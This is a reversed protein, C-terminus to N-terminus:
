KGICFNSFIEGLLDDASFEGTIESLALQAMRLEEAALEHARNFLQQLSNKIFTHTRELADLHRRRALFTGEEDEVFGVQKKIQDKLLEIGTQYRASLAIVTKGAELRISPPVPILDIKNEIVIVSQLENSKPLEIADKKNTVDIVYLIVDARKIEEFARRIGEREVRDESDRLGATDIVHIPLGDMVIRNHLVDRTTGAIDTVIAIEEGSLANLLSSKGVNAAGAIVISIGDRLLVGQRSRSQIRDIDVLVQKIQRSLSEDALFDIEEESFDIAAELYMRLRTINQAISAIGKSFDGQLSRMASRVARQSTANILDAIAEAQALDIKNNLFAWQSFEGPGALRAGIRVMCQILLDVVLPSGHCHLELVDEGTFSHPKPFFIAIGIDITEDNADLFPLYAAQRPTLEAGLMCRMITKVLEGSARVVAIGGRGSPTAQAVITDSARLM